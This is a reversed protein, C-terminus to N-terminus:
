DESYSSILLENVENLTIDDYALYSLVLEPDSGRLFSIMRECVFGSNKSLFEKIEINENVKFDISFM